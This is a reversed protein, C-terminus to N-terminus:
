YYVIMRMQLGMNEQNIEILIGQIIVFYKNLAEVDYIGNTFDM